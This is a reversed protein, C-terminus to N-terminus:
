MRKFMESLYINKKKIQYKIVYIKIGESWEMRQGLCQFSFIVGVPFKVEIERIVPPCVSFSVM